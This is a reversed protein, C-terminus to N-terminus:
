GTQQSSGHSISDNRIRATDEFLSFTGLAKLPLTNYSLMWKILIRPLEVKQTM